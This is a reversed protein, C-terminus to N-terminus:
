LLEIDPLETDEDLEYSRVQAASALSPLAAASKPRSGRTPASLAPLEPVPVPTSRPAPQARATSLCPLAPVSRRQPLERLSPIVDITERGTLETGPYPTLRPFPTLRAQLDAAEAGRLSPIMDLSSRHHMAISEPLRGWFLLAGEPVSYRLMQVERAFERVVGRCRLRTLASWMIKVDANTM